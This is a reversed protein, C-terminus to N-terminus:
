AKSTGQQDGQGRFFEEGTQSRRMSRFLMNALFSERFRQKRLKRAVLALMSVLEVMLKIVIKDVAPTAHSIETFMRLRSIYYQISELMDALVDFSTIVGNAAQNL